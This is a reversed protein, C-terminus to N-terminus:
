LHSVEKIPIHRGTGMTKAIQAKEPKQMILASPFCSQFVRFCTCLEIKGIVRHKIPELLLSFVTLSDVILSLVVNAITKRGGMMKATLEQPRYSICRRYCSKTM